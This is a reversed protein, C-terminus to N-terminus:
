MFLKKLHKDVEAWRAKLTERDETSYLDEYSCEMMREFLIALKETSLSGSEVLQQFTPHTTNFIFIFPNKEFFIIPYDEGLDMPKAGKIRVVKVEEESEEEAATVSKIKHPKKKEVKRIEIKKTQKSEHKSSMKIELFPPDEELKTKQRDKPSIVHKAKNDAKHMSTKPKAAKQELSSDFELRIKSTSTEMAVQIEETSIKWYKKFEKMLKQIFDVEMKKFAEQPRLNSLYSQLKERFIRYKKNNVFGERDTKIDLFDQDVFATLGTYPEERVGVGKQTYYIRGERGLKYYVTVLGYSSQFSGMKYESTILSSLQVNNITITCEKNQLALSLIKTLYLIVDKLNYTTKLGKFYFVIGNGEADTIQPGEYGNLTFRWTYLQGKHHSQVNGESSQSLLALRGIGFMGRSDESREHGSAITGFLQDFRKPNIGVGDDRYLLEDEHLHIKINVQNNRRADLSNVILEKIGSYFVNSYMRESLLSIIRNTDVQWKIM